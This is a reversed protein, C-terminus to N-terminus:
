KVALESAARAARRKRMLAESTPRYPEHADPPMSDFFEKAREENALLAEFLRSAVIEPDEEMETAIKALDNMTKKPIILPFCLDNKGKPVLRVGNQALMAYVGSTDPQGIAAGIEKAGYGYGAM